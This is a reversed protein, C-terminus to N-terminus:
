TIHLQDIVIYFLLVRQAVCSSHNRIDVLYCITLIYVATCYIICIIRCINGVQYSIVEDILKTRLNKFKM